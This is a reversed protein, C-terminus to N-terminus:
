MQANIAFGWLMERPSLHDFCYLLIPDFDRSELPVLISRGNALNVQFLNQSYTFEHAKVGIATLLLMAAPGTDKMEVDFRHQAGGVDSMQFDKNIQLDINFEGVFLLAVHFPGFTVNGLKLDRGTLTALNQSLLAGTSM